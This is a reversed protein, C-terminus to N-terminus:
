LATALAMRIKRVWFGSIFDDAWEVIVLLTGAPISGVRAFFSGSGDFWGCVFEVLSGDIRSEM